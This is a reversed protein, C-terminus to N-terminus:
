AECFICNFLMHWSDCFVTYHVLVVNSFKVAEHIVASSYFLLVNFHETKIV